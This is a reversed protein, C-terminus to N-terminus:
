PKKARGSVAAVADIFRQASAVDTALYLFIRNGSADYVYVVYGDLLGKGKFIKMDAVSSFRLIETSLASGGDRIVKLYVDTVEVKLPPRRSLQVVEELDKKPEAVKAPQPTYAIADLCGTAAFAMLAAVVIGHLQLSKM